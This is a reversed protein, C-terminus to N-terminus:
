SGRYTSYSWPSCGLPVHCSEGAEVRFRVPVQDLFPSAVGRSRFYAGISFLLECTGSVMADGELLPSDCRGDANTTRGCVWEGEVFLDIRVGAAPRGASVDLVHTTLRGNM